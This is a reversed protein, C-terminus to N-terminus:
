VGGGNGMGAGDFETGGVGGAAPAGGGDSPSGGNEAGGAGQGAGGTGEGGTRTAQLESGAGCGILVGGALGGFVDLVFRRRSTTELDFPISTMPNGGRSM